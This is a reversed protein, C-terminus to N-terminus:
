HEHLFEALQLLHSSHLLGRASPPSLFIPAVGTFSDLAVMPAPPNENPPVAIGGFPPPPVILLPPNEKPAAVALEM